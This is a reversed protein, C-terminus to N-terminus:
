VKWYETIIDVSRCFRLYFQLQLITKNASRLYRGLLFGRLDKIDESHENGCMTCIVFSFHTTFVCLNGNEITYCLENIESAPEIQESKPVEIIEDKSKLYIHLKSLYEDLAVKNSPVKIAPNIVVKVPKKLPKNGDINYELIPAVFYLNKTKSRPIDTIFKDYSLHVKGRIKYKCNEPISGKPIHLFSDTEYSTLMGGHHDFEDTVDNSSCLLITDSESDSLSKTEFTIANRLSEIPENSVYTPLKCHEKVKNTKVKLRPLKFPQQKFCNM